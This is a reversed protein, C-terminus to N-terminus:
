IEIAEYIKKGLHYPVQCLDSSTIHRVNHTCAMLSLTLLQRAGTEPKRWKLPKSTMTWRSSSTWAPETPALPLTTETFVQGSNRDYTSVM